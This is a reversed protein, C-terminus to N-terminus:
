PDFSGALASNLTLGHDERVVVNRVKSSSLLCTSRHPIPGVEHIHSLFNDPALQCGDATREDTTASEGSMASLFKLLPHTSLVIVDFGFTM